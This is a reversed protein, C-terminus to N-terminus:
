HYPVVFTKKVRESKLFYLIWISGFFLSRIFDTISTEPLERTILSTLILDLGLFCINFLYLIIIAKPLIDRCQYLLIFCFISLSCIFVNGVIEIVYTILTLINEKSNWATIWTDSYLYNNAVMGYIILFPSIILGIMVLILWGGIPEAYEQNTTVPLSIKYIKIAGYAFLAFLILVGTLVWGNIIGNKVIPENQSSSNVGSADYTLQYGLQDYITTMDKNFREIKDVPIFDQLTKYHYHLTISKELENYKREYNFQYESTNISSQKEDINWTEPLLVEITYDIEYPFALSVPSKRMKDPLMRLQDYLIQGFFSGILKKPNAEDKKWFEKIQYSELIKFTNTFDNNQHKLSDKVEIQWSKFTNTYYDLYSKEIKNLGSSAFTTRIDDATNKDYNSEVDFGVIAETSISPIKFTEVIKIVGSPSVPVDSLSNNGEKLVLVKGYRPIQLEDINGRQLSNTADVWYQKKNLVAVTIVHNFVTPSPLFDNTHYTSYTNVYVLYSEIGNANLLTKLLLSKDKCDGFRQALVKDPQHPRHSHEGLEIGMYRVEDQVFRIASQLYKKPDGDSKKRLENVKNSLSKSLPKPVSSIMLGWNVVENWSKAESIQVHPYNNFWAPEFDESEHKKINLSEWEYVQLNQQNVINPKPCDNFSKFLLKRTSAFIVAKYLHTVPSYSHFYLDSYFKGQFIPNKGTISYAYEIRDGKRIDELIIYA